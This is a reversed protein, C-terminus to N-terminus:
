PRQTIASTSWITQMPCCRMEVMVSSFFRELIRASSSTQGRMSKFVFLEERAELEELALRIQGPDGSTVAAALSDPLKKASLIMRRGTQLVESANFAAYTHLGYLQHLVVRFFTNGSRGSSTIWVIMPSYACLRYRSASCLPGFSDIAGVAKRKEAGIRHM